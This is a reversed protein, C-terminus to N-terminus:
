FTIEPEWGPATNKIVSSFIEGKFGPRYEIPKNFREAIENVSIVQGGLQYEGTEWGPALLFAKVVDDVHVITRTAKGDGYIVLKEAQEFKNIVGKGGPGYINPLMLLVYDKHLLKIYDAAAKKSLGYPSKIDLTSASAPYIIRKDPYTELIETTLLINDRADQWPHTMSYQVDTQAAFHFILDVDKFDRLYSNLKRDYRLVEHGQAELAKCLRSGIFGESGTVLVRSM